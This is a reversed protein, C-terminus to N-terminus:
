SKQPSTKSQGSSGAQNGSEGQSSDRDRVRLNNQVHEIGSVSEACDEACRKAWRSGVHGILTVERGSVEVEIDSADLDSDDSLRDCVDERIREESRQYNRPGKGRHRGGEDRRGSQWSQAGQGYDAGAAYGGGRPPSATDWSRAGRDGVDGRDYGYGRDYPHDGQPDWSRGRAVGRETESGYEYSYDQSGGRRGRPQFDNGYAYYEQGPNRPAGYPAYDDASRYDRGQRGYAQEDQFRHGPIQHRGDQDYSEDHAAYDRRDGGYYDQHHQVRTRHRGDDERESQADPRRRSSSCQM